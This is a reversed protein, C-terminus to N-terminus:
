APPMRREQVMFVFEIGDGFSGRRSDGRDSIMAVRSEACSGEETRMSFAM